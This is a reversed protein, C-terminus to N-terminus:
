PLMSFWFITFSNMEKERKTIGGGGQYSNVLGFFSKQENDNNFPASFLYNSLLTESTNADTHHLIRNGMEVLTANIQLRLHGTVFVSDMWFYVSSRSTRYLEIAVDSSYIVSSTNLFGPFYSRGYEENTIAMPGNRPVLDPPVYSGMIFETSGASNLLYDYVHPINIFVNDDMKVVYRAGACNYTFWKLGMVHKYTSSRMSDVFNGQIIDNYEANEKEVARQLPASKASGLLFYTRTRVDSHTWFDRFMQRREINEPSSHVLIVIFPLATKPEASNVSFVCKPQTILYDFDTLNILTHFDDAPLEIREPLIVTRHILYLFILWNVFTLALLARFGCDNNSKM